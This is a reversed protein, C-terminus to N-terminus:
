ELRQVSATHVFYRDSLYEHLRLIRNEIRDLLEILRERRGDSAIVNPLLQRLPPVEAAADLKAEEERPPGSPPLDMIALADADALRIDGRLDNISDRWDGIRDPDLPSLSDLLLDLQQLGFAVARPNTEDILLLDIVPAAEVNIMYRFRYTMSSDMIELMAEMLTTGYAYDHGLLSRLLHVQALVREIRVGINLFQWGPGRTMNEATLGSFASLSLLVRQLQATLGAREVDPSESPDGNADNAADTAGKITDLRHRLNQNVLSDLLRYSDISLRDRVMIMNGRVAQLMSVLGLSHEASRMLRRVRAVHFPPRILVEAPVSSAIEDSLPDVIELLITVAAALHEDIDEGIRSLVVRVHRALTEIRQTSRGLWYQNEAVRSPLEFRSRRLEISTQPPRLLSIPEPPEDGIVWVDKSLSGSRLSDNLADANPGLRAVGGDLTYYGGECLTVFCRLVMPWPTIRDEHHVPATSLTPRRVAVFRYPEKDIQQRLRRDQDATRLAGVRTGVGARQFADIFELQDWQQRVEHLHEAHGCWYMPVSPLRLPSDLLRECLVPLMAMVAPSEAWGIGIPNAVAVKGRRVAHCLGPVGVRGELDLPDCQEDQIRRLISNVPSLGGLTKQFLEGGRVTLDEAQCLTYGLYRALYADEFFTDSRVGPSLLVTTVKPQRMSGYADIADRLMRYFKAFRQVHLEKFESGLVGALALRNELAFGGGSPGQTRDAMAVFRGSEDRCLQVAYLYLAPEGARITGRLAPLYKPSGYVLDAPLIGRQLFRQPGYIDAVLMNILTARQEIARALEIFDSQRILLPLPDLEWSVRTSFSATISSSQHEQLYRKLSQWRDSIQRQLTHRDQGIRQLRQMMGRDTLLQVWHRATQPDCSLLEDFPGVARGALALEKRRGAYGDILDAPSVDPWRIVTNEVDASPLAGPM